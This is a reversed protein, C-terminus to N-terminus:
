IIQTPVISEANNSLDEPMQKTRLLCKIAEERIEMRDAVRTGFKGSLSDTCATEACTNIREAEVPDLFIGKIKIGRLRNQPVNFIGLKDKMRFYYYNNAGTKRYKRLKHLPETTPAIERGTLTTVRILEINGDFVGAPIEDVTKLIYCDLPMGFCEECEAYPAVCLRICITQYIDEPLEKHKELRRELVLGRAELLAMYIQEDTFESDDSTERLSQRTFDIHSRVLDYKNM